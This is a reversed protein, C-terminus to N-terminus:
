LTEGVCSCGNHSYHQWQRGALTAGDRDHAVHHGRTQLLHMRWWEEPLVTHHGVRVTVRPFLLKQGAESQKQGMESKANGVQKHSM